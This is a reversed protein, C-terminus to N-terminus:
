TVVRAWRRLTRDPGDLWAIEPWDVEDPEIGDIWSAAIPVWYTNGGSMRTREALDHLTHRARDQDDARVDLVISAVDALNHGGRYGIDDALQRTEDVALASADGDGEIAAAIAEAARLKVLEVPNPVLGLLERARVACTAVAEVDGSWCATQALNVLAKAEAAALGHTGALEIAASYTEAAQDFLANVRSIHGVLRLREGEDAPTRGQWARLEAMARIFRGNLYDHDCLWYRATDTFPGGLLARYIEAAKTYDGTNRLAHALHLRVLHGIESDAEVARDAQELVAVAQGPDGSRRLLVGEIAANVAQVQPSAPEDTPLWGAFSTWQGAEVLQQTARVLWGDFVGHTNALKLGAELTQATSVRDTSPGVRRGLADLLRSAVERRDRDSWGDPMARDADGIAARLALHLSFPPEHADDHMLFPRKLFRVIVGDAVRPQGARLLDADFRDVLAATRVLDREERPLDRISRTAVATMSGGFDDPSLTDGRALLEVFHSVSLDLYLPLGQGGSLIRERIDPPIAADGDRILAERLYGDADTDSLYGVLHQRPEDVGNSYHLNPWRDPGVFDLEGRHANDAWDIRNRGTIVFLVNPMLYICRQVLREATEDTRNALAEFTDIFVCVTPRRGRRRPLRELDWALLYPLFSLTDYDADADILERLMDCNALLRGECVRDRIARYVGLGTHQALGPLGGVETPVLFEINSTIQESLGVNTAIRHLTPSRDLFQQLAEGPHARAWYCSLALDFAFWRKGLQGLGARLRLLLSEMDTATDDVVDIRIAAVDTRREAAADALLRRELEQSLTTKGIGGVGYYSLINRRGQTRDVVPSVAAGDLEQELNGIAVQFAATEDARDAFVQQATVPSDLGSMFAARLNVRAM